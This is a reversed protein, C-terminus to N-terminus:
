RPSSLLGYGGRTPRHDDRDLCDKFSTGPAAKLDGTRHGRPPDPLAPASGVHFHILTGDDKGVERGSRQGTSMTWENILVGNM